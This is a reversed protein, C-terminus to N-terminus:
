WELRWPDRMKRALMANAQKDGIFRESQPDWKLKRGLRLCINGIHCITSSRHAIEPPAIPQERSRMCDLFNRHHPNWHAYDEQPVRAQELISRPEAKLTGFDDVSIWGADGEFKVARPDYDHFVLRVGDAYTATVGYYVPTNFLGERPFVAWGEYEVPGSFESNHGWQALDNFHAGIDTLQGGSYDYIWRFSGHCRLKTYPAEPAPGLWTDYDFGDPVPEAPQPPCERGVSLHTHITHVKGILGIRAAWVAFQFCPISRRQTGSQYVRGYKRTAGVVARGEAVTLSIPKECYIDKGAKAAEISILAHWHDPTAIMVADIDDRAIVERWDNYAACDGNGYKGDVLAKAKDRRDRDVDCVAVFQVDDHAMFNATNLTGMGGIGIGAMVIRDSPPTRGLGLVSGPVVQAAALAVAEGSRKLFGRRSLQGM